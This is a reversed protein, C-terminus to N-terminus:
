TRPTSRGAAPSQTSEVPLRLLYVAGVADARGVPDADATARHHPPVESGPVPATLATGGPVGLPPSRRCGPWCRSQLSRSAVGSIPSSWRAARTGRRASHFTSIPRHTPAAREGASISIISFQPDYIWWWAIASLVTPVIWPPLVIARIFAKFPIHQNLLMALWLGLLFKGVTALVVTAAHDYQYRVDLVGPGPRALRLQGVRHLRGAPRDHHRHYQLGAVLRPGSSLTLFVLLLGATPLMGVARDPVNGGQQRVAQDALGDQRRPTSRLATEVTADM